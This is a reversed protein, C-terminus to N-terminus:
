EAPGPYTSNDFQIAGSLSGFLNGCPGDDCIPLNLNDLVDKCKTM